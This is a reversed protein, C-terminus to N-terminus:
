GREHRDWKKKIFLHDLYWGIRQCGSQQKALINCSTALDQKIEELTLDVDAVSKGRGKAWWIQWAISLYAM